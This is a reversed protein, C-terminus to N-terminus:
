GFDKVQLSNKKRKKNKNAIYNNIETILNKKSFRRARIAGLQVTSPAQINKVIELEIYIYIYLLDLPYLKICSNVVLWTVNIVTHVTIRKGLQLTSSFFILFFLIFDSCTYNIKAKSSFVYYFLIFM